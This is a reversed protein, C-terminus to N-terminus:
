LTRTIVVISLLKILVKPKFRPLPKFRLPPLPNKLILNRTTRHLNRIHTHNLLQLPAFPIMRAHLCIRFSMDGEYSRQILVGQRSRDGRYSYPSSFAGDIGDSNGNGDGYEDGYSAVRSRKKRAEVWAARDSILALVDRGRRSPERFLEWVGEFNAENVETENVSGDEGSYANWKWDWMVM